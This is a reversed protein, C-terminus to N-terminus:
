VRVVRGRYAAPDKPTNHARRGSPYATDFTGVEAVEPSNWPPAPAEQRRKLEQAGEATMPGLGHTPTGPRAPVYDVFQRTLGGKGDPLLVLYDRLAPSVKYVKGSELMLNLKSLFYRHGYVMRVLVRDDKPEQPKPDAPAPDPAAAQATPEQPKDKKIDVAV